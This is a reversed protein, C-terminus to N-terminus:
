SNKWYILYSLGLLPEEVRLRAGHPLKELGGQIRNLEANHMTETGGLFVGAFTQPHYSEPFRVEIEFMETPLDPTWSHYEHPFGSAYAPSSMVYGANVGVKCVLDLPPDCRSLTGTVELAAAMLQDNSTLVVQRPTVDKPYPGGGGNGGVTAEVLLQPLLKAQPGSASVKFPIAGITINDTVIQFGRITRIISADGQNNLIEAYISASRIKVGFRSIQDSALHKGSNQIGTEIKDIHQKQKDIHQKQENVQKKQRAGWITAAITGITGILGLSGTIWATTIATKAAVEAARLQDSEPAPPTSVSAPPQSPQGPLAGVAALNAMASLLLVLWLQGGWLQRLRDRRILRIFEPM